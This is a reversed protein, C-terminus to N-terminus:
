EALIQTLYSLYNDVVRVMLMEGVLARHERFMTLTKVAALFPGLEQETADLKEVDRTMQEFYEDEAAPGLVLELLFAVFQSVSLQEIMFQLYSRSRASVKSGQEM